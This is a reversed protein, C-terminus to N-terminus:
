ESLRGKKPGCVKETLFVKQINYKQNETYM